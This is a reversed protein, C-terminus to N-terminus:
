FWIKTYKILTNHSEKRSWYPNKFMNRSNARCDKLHPQQIKLEQQNKVTSQIEHKRPKIKYGVNLNYSIIITQTINQQLKFNQNMHHLRNDYILTDKIIEQNKIHHCSPQQMITHQSTLNYKHWNKIITHQLTLNYTDRQDNRSVKNLHCSPQWM